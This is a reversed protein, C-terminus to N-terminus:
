CNDTSTEIFTKESYSEIENINKDDKEKQENFTKLLDEVTKLQQTLTHFQRLMESELNTIKGDIEEFKMHVESKMIPKISEYPPCQKILDQRLEEMQTPNLGVDDICDNKYLYIKTLYRLPSLINHAVHKIRNQHMVIARLETNHLFLDKELVELHNNPLLLVQLKTLNQMDSKFIKKLGSYAILIGELNDWDIGIKVPFYHCTQSIIHLGKVSNINKGASHRGHVLAIEQHPKTVNLNNVKCEYVREIVAWTEFRYECSACLTSSVAFYM